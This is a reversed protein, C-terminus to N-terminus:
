SDIESLIKELVFKLEMGYALDPECLLSKSSYQLLIKQFTVGHIRYLKLKQLTVVYKITSIKIKNKPQSQTSTSLTAMIESIYEAELKLIL